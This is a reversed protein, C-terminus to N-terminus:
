RSFCVFSPATDSSPTSSSSSSSAAAQSFSFALLRKKKEQQEKASKKKTLDAILVSFFLVRTSKALLRTASLSLGAPLVRRLSRKVKHTQFSPPNPRNSGVGRASAASQPTIRALSRSYKFLSSKNSVPCTTVYLLLSFLDGSHSLPPRKVALVGVSLGTLRRREGMVSESGAGGGVAEQFNFRCGHLEDKWCESGLPAAQGGNPPPTQSPPARFM